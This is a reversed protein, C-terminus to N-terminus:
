NEKCPPPLGQLVFDTIFFVVVKWLKGRGEGGGDGRGERKGEGDGRGGGERRGDGEEWGEKV